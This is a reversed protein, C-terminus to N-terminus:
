FFFIFRSKYFICIYVPKEISTVELVDNDNHWDNNKKRKIKREKVTDKQWCVSLNM